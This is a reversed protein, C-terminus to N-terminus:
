CKLQCTQQQLITKQKPFPYLSIKENFKKAANRIFDHAEDKLYNLKDRNAKIFTIMLPLLIMLM